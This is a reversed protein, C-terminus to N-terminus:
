LYFNLHRFTRYPMVKVRHSMISIKHLSPQRNFLVVDGDSLHREVIDGIQLNKATIARNGYRLSRKNGTKCDIIQNAGPHVLEGNIVAKRLREINSRCVVEPFTLTMAVQLPVGVQDIKLNPDPSIVTRATFDVRKGSLNGRFRGHKGKLRQAFSRLFKKPQMEPPLGSMESNIYLACQVQLHDWTECITKMPAGDKKHKKLIDNILMIETLKMTIDDENSGSKLESVVSPRICVPPVPIRQNLFHLPHKCEDAGIMLLPLDKLDIRKFIEMVKLPDLLNQKSSSLLQQLENRDEVAALIEASLPEHHSIKLVSGVAKKVVGNLFGCKTCMSIKKSLTVIKKQLAKKRLYDLNPNSAQRFCFRCSKQRSRLILRVIDNLFGCKTCMSIKKSLTVIKKQLAKKRLYDLNPNSAQRLLLSKQEEQLLTQSCGKCICQLTQIILRFFGVHFVPYELDIFGFHGVCDNMNKNCTQCNLSKQFTGLRSDLPGYQAPLWKGQVDEYLRNNFIQIHAAQRILETNGATFKVGIVKRSTDAEKFQEKGM